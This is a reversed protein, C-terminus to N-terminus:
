IGPKPGAAADGRRRADPLLHTVETGNARLVMEEAQAKTLPYAM